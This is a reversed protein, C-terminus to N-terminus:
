NSSLLRSAASALLSERGATFQEISAQAPPTDKLALAEEAFERRATDLVSESGEVKGQLADHM